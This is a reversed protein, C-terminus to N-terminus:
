IGSTSRAGRLGSEPAGTNCYTGLLSTSSQGWPHASLWCHQETQGLAEWSWGPSHLATAPCPCLPSPFPYSVTLSM